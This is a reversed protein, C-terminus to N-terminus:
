YETGKELTVTATEENARAVEGQPPYEKVEDRIM